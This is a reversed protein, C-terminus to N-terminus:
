EVVRWHMILRKRQQLQRQPGLDSSGDAVRSSQAGRDTSTSCKQIQGIDNIQMLVLMALIRGKQPSSADSEIFGFEDHRNEVSRTTMGKGGPEFRRLTM